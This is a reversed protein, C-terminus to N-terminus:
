AGAGEEMLRNWLAEGKMRQQVAVQRGLFRCEETGARLVWALLTTQDDVEEYGISRAYEILSAAVQHRRERSALTAAHPTVAGKLAHLLQDPVSAELLRQYQAQSLEPSVTADQMPHPAPLDLLVGAGDRDAYCWAQWPACFASRQAPSWVKLLARLVRGDALRLYGRPTGDPLPTVVWPQLHAHAQSMPIRSLLWNVGRASGDIGHAHAEDAELLWVGLAQAEAEVDPLLSLAAGPRQSLKQGLEHQLATDVLVLVHVGPAATRLQHWREPLRNM